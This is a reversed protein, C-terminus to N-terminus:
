KRIPELHPKALLLTALTKGDQIQGSYVMGWVEKLPISVRELFEDDDTPLVSEYLETALFAQMKETSYGPVMYFEGLHVLHGAAFGIEERLERAASAQAEEEEELLGAPLELLIQEAGIRFQRVFWVNGAQDLPLITVAGHHRILDYSHEKENPLRFRVRVLDFIRGQYLADEGLYQHAM